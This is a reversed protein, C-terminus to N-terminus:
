PNAERIATIVAHGAYFVASLPHLSESLEEDTAEVGRTGEFTRVYLRVRGIRPAPTAEVRPFADLHAEVADLFAEAADRVGAHEGAGIVGGGNSFYLSTTGEALSMLTAIGTPYGLEMIAGWVRPRRESPAIELDEASVRLAQERLQRIIGTPDM